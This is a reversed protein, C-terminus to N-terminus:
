REKIKYNITINKSKTVKTVSNYVISSGKARNGNMNSTYKVPTNVVKTKENYIARQSYFSLGDARIYEVDGKLDLINNKYNGIKSKLNVLFEGENDTYNLNDIIYRDSYRTGTEGIIVSSLKEKSLESIKFNKLTLLAIEGHNNKKMDIPKFLFLIMLLLAIIATFFININM